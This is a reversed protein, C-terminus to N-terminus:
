IKSNMEEIEPVLDTFRQYNESGLIDMVEFPNQLMLDYLIFHEPYLMSEPDQEQAHHWKKIYQDFNNGNLGLDKGSTKFSSYFLEESTKKNLLSEFSPGYISKFDFINQHYNYYNRIYIVMKSLFPTEGQQILKITDRENSSDHAPIEAICQDADHISFAKAAFKHLFSDSVMKNYDNRINNLEAKKFSFINSINIKIANFNKYFSYTSFM